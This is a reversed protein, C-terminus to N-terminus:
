TIGLSHTTKWRQNYAANSLPTMNRYHEPIAGAVVKFQTPPFLSALSDGVFNILGLVSVVRWFGLKPTLPGFLCILFFTWWVFRTVAQISKSTTSPVPQLGVGCRPCDFEKQRALKHPLEGRCQPCLLVEAGM